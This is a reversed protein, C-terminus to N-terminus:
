FKGARSQPTPVIPNSGIVEEIHSFRELGASSRGQLAPSCLYCRKRFEWFIKPTMEQCAALLFTMPIGENQPNEKEPVLSEKACSQPNTNKDLDPRQKTESITYIGTNSVKIKNSLLYKSTENPQLASKLGRSKKQSQLLIVPNSSPPISPFLAKRGRPHQRMGPPM